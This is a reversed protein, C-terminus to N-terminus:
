FIFDMIIYADEEGVKKYSLLCVYFLKKSKFKFKQKKSKEDGV